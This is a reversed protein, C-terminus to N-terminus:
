RRPEAVAPRAYHDPGGAEEGNHQNSVNMLLPSLGRIAVERRYLGARTAGVASATTARPTSYPM